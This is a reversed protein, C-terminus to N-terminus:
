CSKELEAQALLRTRSTIMFKFQPVLWTLSSLSSAKVVERPRFSMLVYLKKYFEMCSVFKVIMMVLM